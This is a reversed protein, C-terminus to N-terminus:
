NFSYGKKGPFGNTRVCPRDYHMLVVEGDIVNFGWQFSNPATNEFGTESITYRGSDPGYYYYEGKKKYAKAASEFTIKGNEILVNYESETSMSVAAIYDAHRDKWYGQLESEVEDINYYDGNGLTIKGGSLKYPIELEAGNMAITITSKDLVYDYTKTGSEHKGNGDYYFQSVSATEGNFTLVNLISDAGGNFFWTDKGLSDIVDGFNKLMIEYEIEGIREASDKYDPILEFFSVAKEFDGEDLLKEAYAYRMASMIETSECGTFSMVLILVALIFALKKKM